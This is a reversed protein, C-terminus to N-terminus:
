DGALEDVIANLNAIGGNTVYWRASDVYIIRDNKFASTEHMLENDLVQMASDAQQGVAADRDLVILWDPDTELLFEFSVADGHTAAEVDAIAPTIGLTDHVFGFRSGPGYATIEGGSSMIILATGFDRTQEGFGAVRADFDAILAEIEATRDFIQGLALSNRKVSPVFDAWDNSLDITPAIASLEGYADSSRGAVIILDPQLANVAEYDPEFLSGVKIYDDGEYADLNAPMNFAPVGAVDIGLAQLTDLTALDFSVVKEPNVPVETEGQAHAITVTDASLTPSAVLATALAAVALPHSIKM